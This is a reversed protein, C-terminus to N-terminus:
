QDKGEGAKAEDLLSQFDQLTKNIWNALSKASALDMMACVEVERIISERSLREAEIEKGMKDNEIRYVVHLPIPPRESFLNIVFDGRPSIGGVAGSAKIVRFHNSKIYDFAIEDESSEKANSPVENELTESSM